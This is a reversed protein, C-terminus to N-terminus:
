SEDEDFTDFDAGDAEFMATLKDNLLANQHDNLDPDRPRDDDLCVDCTQVDGLFGLAEAVRSELIGMSDDIENDSEM